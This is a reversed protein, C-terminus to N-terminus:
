GARKLRGVSRRWHALLGEAYSPAVYVDVVRESVGDLRVAIHHIVTGAVCDLAFSPAEADFVGGIMLLDRWGDGEIRLRTLAGSIDTAAGDEGLAETLGALTADGDIRPARVLWINPELWLIRCDGAAVARCPPPLPTGLRQGASVADGWIEIAILAEAPQPAIEIM